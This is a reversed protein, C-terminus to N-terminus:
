PWSIRRYGECAVALPSITVPEGCFFDLFGSTIDYVIDVQASDDVQTSVQEIVGIWRGARDSSAGIRFATKTADLMNLLEELSHECFCLSDFAM